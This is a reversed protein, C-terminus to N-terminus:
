LSARTTCAPCGETILAVAEVAAARWKGRVQEGAPGTLQEWKPVDRGDFTKGPNPGAANYAEFMKRALQDANV